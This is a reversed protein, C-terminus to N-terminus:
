RAARSTSRTACARRSGPRSTRSRTTLSTRSSSRSSTAVSGPWPTRLAFSRPLGTPWRSWCPMGPRMGLGDNVVKFMDLDLFVLVLRGESRGERALGHEIRDALLLRNPLGTLPDHLAQHERERSMQATRQVAILPLLLLPLLTWSNPRGVAIGAVLPSLALVAFAAFTFFWFEESFSEWWTQEDSEALGAVLALNVLHYVIWTAVIWGLDGVTLGLHPSTPTPDVGAALMVLWAATVSISYQGVNFPIKWLSKRAVIESVLVSAAQLVLAPYLGWIYLTAFVFALSISVPNGPLRTMVIPRLESLLVVAAIMAMPAGMALWDSPDLHGVSYAVLGCGVWTCVQWTIAFMSPRWLSPRLDAAM